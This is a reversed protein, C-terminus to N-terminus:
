TACATARVDPHAHMEVQALEALIDPVQALQPWNLQMNQRTTFHGYGRDYKRAVHALTACSGPRCSATRFRSACADARAEPHLPREHPALPRFDDDPLEGALHRRTQDRFQAVREDVLRQDFHDYRYM